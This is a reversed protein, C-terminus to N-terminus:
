VQTFSPINYLAPRWSLTAGGLDDFQLCDIAPGGTRGQYIKNEVISVTVVNPGAVLDAKGCQYKKFATFAGPAASISSSYKVPVGNVRIDLISPDLAMSGIESDLGLSLGVGGVAKDSNIKYTLTIQGFVFPIYYGGKEEASTKGDRSKSAVIESSSQILGTGTASGSYASGTIGRLDTYEAEFCTVGSVEADEIHFTFTANKSSFGEASATVVLAASQHSKSPKGSLTGDASLTLGAPLGSKVAYVIMAGSNEYGSPFKARAVSVSCEEGVFLDKAPDSIYSVGNYVLTVLVSLSYERVVPECGEATATVTLPYEGAKSATGALTGNPYFMVGSPLTGATIAFTIPQRNSANASVAGIDIFVTNVEVAIKGDGGFAINGAAPEFSLAPNTKLTFETEAPDFGTASAVVTFKAAGAATPTGHLLGIETLELGDPLETGKKVAYKIKKAADAGTGDAASAVSGTFYSGVTATQMPAADYDLWPKVVNLTYEAVAPACDTAAAVVTFDYAATESVKGKLTGDAELTVGAPLMASDPALAYSIKSAGSASAVSKEFDVGKGVKIAGGAYAVVGEEITVTFTAESSGGDASAVVTFTGAAIKQEPVGTIFGDADIELGSPLSDGEKLAYTIEDAGSATGVYASYEAGVQGTMLTGGAYVLTVGCGVIFLPLVLALCLASIIPRIFKGYKKTKQKM